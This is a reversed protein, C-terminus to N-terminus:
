LPFTRIDLVQAFEIKATEEWRQWREAERKAYAKHGQKDGGINRARGEWVERMYGFTRVVCNMEQVVIDKEEDWRKARARARLWNVRYVIKVHTITQSNLYQNSVSRKM